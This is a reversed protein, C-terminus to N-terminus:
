FLWGPKRGRGSWTKGTEPDKYKPALPTRKRAKSGTALVEDPTMGISAALDHIKKAIEKRQKNKRSELERDISNRMERLKDVSYKEVKLNTM